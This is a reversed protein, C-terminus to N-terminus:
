SERGSSKSSRMLVCSLSTLCDEGLSFLVFSPNPFGLCSLAVNAAEQDDQLSSSAPRACPQNTDHLLLLMFPDCLSQALALQAAHRSSAKIRENLLKAADIHLQM